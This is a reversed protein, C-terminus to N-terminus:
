QCKWFSYCYHHHNVYKDCSEKIAFQTNLIKVTHMNRNKKHKLEAVNIYYLYISAPSKVYADALKACISCPSSKFIVHASNDNLSSESFRACDGPGSLARKSDSFGGLIRMKSGSHSCTSRTPRIFPHYKIYKYQYYKM